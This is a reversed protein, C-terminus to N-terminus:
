PQPLQAHQSLVKEARKATETSPNAEITEKFWPQEIDYLVNLNILVAGTGTAAGGVGLANYRGRGNTSWTSKSQSDEALTTDFIHKYEMSDVINRAQRGFETALDASYSAQIISKDKDRGLAWAPFNISVMESKSHRPPLFIMLRKLEGRAIFWKSGPYQICKTLLWECILWSKGGGAAGGFIVYRTENDELKM